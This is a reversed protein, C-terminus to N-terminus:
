HLRKVDTDAGREGASTGNGFSYVCCQLLPTAALKNPVSLM